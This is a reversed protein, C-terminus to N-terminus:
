TKKVFPTLVLLALMMRALKIDSTEQYAASPFEGNSAGLGLQEFHPFRFM